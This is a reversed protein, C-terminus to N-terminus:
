HKPKYENEDNRKGSKKNYFNVIKNIFDNSRAVIDCIVEENIEANYLGTEWIYCHTLEHKLTKIKEEQCMDKNIMITHDSKRTLGFVYYARENMSKEYIKKLTKEGVDRITWIDNNIKFKMNNNGEQLKRM